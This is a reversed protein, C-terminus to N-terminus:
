RDLRIRELEARLAAVRDKTETRLHPLTETRVKVAVGALQIMEGAGHGVIHVGLVKQDAKAVIMKM